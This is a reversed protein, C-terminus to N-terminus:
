IRKMSVAFYYKSLNFYAHFKCTLVMRDEDFSISQGYLESGTAFNFAVCDVNDLVNEFAPVFNLVFSIDFSQMKVEKHTVERHGYKPDLYRLYLFNSVAVKNKALLEHEFFSSAIALVQLNFISFPIDKQDTLFLYIHNIRHHGSGPMSVPNPFGFGTTQNYAAIKIESLTFAKSHISHSSRKHDEIVSNFPNKDEIADELLQIAATTLRNIKSMERETTSDTVLKVSSGTGLSRADAGLDLLQSLLLDFVKMLKKKYSHDKHEILAHKLVNLSKKILKRSLKFEAITSMSDLFHKSHLDWHIKIESDLDRLIMLLKRQMTDYLERSLECNEGLFGEECKCAFYSSGNGHISKFLKGKFSCQIHHGTKLDQRSYSKTRIIEETYGRYLKTLEKHIDGRHSVVASAQKPATFSQEVKGTITTSITDNTLRM